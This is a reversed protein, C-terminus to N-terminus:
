TTSQDDCPKGMEYHFTLLIPPNNDALRALIAVAQEEKPLTPDCEALYDAIIRRAIFWERACTQLPNM